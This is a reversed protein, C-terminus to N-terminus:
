KAARSALPVANGPLHDRFDRVFDAWGEPRKGNLGRDISNRRYRAFNAMATQVLDEGWIRIMPQMDKGVRGYQITGVNTLWFDGLRGVWSAPAQGADLRSPKVDSSVTNVKKVDPSEDATQRIATTAKETEKKAETETETETTVNQKVLALPTSASQKGDKCPILFGASVLAELDIPTRLSLRNTLWDPDAPIRNDMESALLWLLILHAKSADHLRAFDYDTLVSRHLKIWPPNRHKYHQHKAFDKVQLYQM